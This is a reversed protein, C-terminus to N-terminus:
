RSWTMDVPIYRLTFFVADSEASDGVIDRDQERHRYKATINWTPTLRYSLSAEASLYDREDEIQDDLSESRGVQGRISTDIRDTLQYDWSAGVRHNTRLYGDGSPMADTGIELAWRSRESRYALEADLFTATGRDDSGSVIALPGISFTSEYETDVRSVGALVNLQLRETLATEFGARVGLSESELERFSTTEYSSGYLQLQLGTRETLQYLWTLSASEFESDSFNNSEYETDGLTADVRLANRENLQQTWYPTFTTQEKRTAQQTFRGTDELESTRTSDRKFVASIGYEATRMQKVFRLALNQDDSDYTSDDFRSFDLDLDASAEFDRDAVRALLTPSFHYGTVADENNPALRINNDAEVGADARASLSYETATSM